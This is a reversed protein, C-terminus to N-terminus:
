IWVKKLLRKGKGPLGAAAKRSRHFLFRSRRMNQLVWEASLAKLQLTWTQTSRTTLHRRVTSHRSEIGAVSTSLVMAHLHLCQQLMEGCFGPFKRLLERSWPDMVCPKTMALSEGLDPNKILRFMVYPFCGHAHELNQHILCGQRSMIRFILSNLGVTIASDEVITWPHEGLLQRVEEYYTSELVGEAAITALYDRSVGPISDPLSLRALVRARQSVEWSHSSMQLQRLVLGRLPEMTLRFVLLQLLVDEKM